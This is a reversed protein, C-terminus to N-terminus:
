RSKAAFAHGQKSAVFSYPDSHHTILSLTADAYVAYAVYFVYMVYAVYMVYMVYVVDGPM